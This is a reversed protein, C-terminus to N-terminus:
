RAPARKKLSQASQGFTVTTTEALATTEALGSALCDIAAGTLESLSGEGGNASWHLAATRTAALVVSTVLSPYPDRDIACGLRNALTSALQKEISTIHAAYAGLLAPEERVIRFRRFCARRDGELGDLDEAIEAAYAVLVARLAQLPSEEVPRALLNNEMRKIREPDAGIIASEKSPFYNFFTRTSVDAAEAIDEVTVSAFGRDAVLKLAASRLAHRTANKKRDRRGVDLLPASSPDPSDAVPAMALSMKAM